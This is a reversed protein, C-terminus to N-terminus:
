PWYAEAFSVAFTCLIELKETLCGLLSISRGNSSIEKSLQRIKLDM